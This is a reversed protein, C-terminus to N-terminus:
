TEWKKAKEFTDIMRSGAYSLRVAVMLYELGM